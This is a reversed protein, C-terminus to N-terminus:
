SNHVLQGIDAETPGNLHRYCTARGASTRIENAPDRCVWCLHGRAPRKPLRRSLVAGSFAMVLPWRQEAFQSGRSLKPETYELLFDEWMGATWHAITRAVDPPPADLLAFAEDLRPDRGIRRRERVNRWVVRVEDRTAPPDVPELDPDERGQASRVEEKGGEGPAETPPPVVRLNKVSPPSPPNTTRRKEERRKEVGPRGRSTRPVDPPHGASVNGSRAQRKREADRKRKERLEEYRPLGRIEFRQLGERSGPGLERVLGARVLARYLLGREGTWELGSEVLEAPNEDEFIGTIPEGDPTMSVGMRWLDLLHGMSMRRDIRALGAVAKAAEFAGLVDVQLYQVGRM